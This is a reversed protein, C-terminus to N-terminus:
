KMCNTMNNPSLFIVRIVSLELAIVRCRVIAVPLSTFFCFSEPFARSNAITCICSKPCARYARGVTGWFWVDQFVSIHSSSRTEATWDFKWMTGNCKTLLIVCCIRSATRPPYIQGCTKINYAQTILMSYYISKQANQNTKCLVLKLLRCCKNRGKFFNSIKWKWSLVFIFHYFSKLFVKFFLDIRYVFIKSDM